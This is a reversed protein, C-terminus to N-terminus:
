VCLCVYLCMRLRLRSRLCVVEVDASGDHRGPTDCVYVCRCVTVVVRGNMFLVGPMNDLADCVSVSVPVPVYVCVCVYVRVRVCMCLCLCPCPRVREGDAVISDHRGPADCM